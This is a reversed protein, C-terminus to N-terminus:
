RLRGAGGEYPSFLLRVRDARATLGYSGRFTMSTVVFALSSSGLLIRRAAVAVVAHFPRPDLRNPRSSMPTQSGPVFRASEGFHFAFSLCIRTELVGSRHPASHSSMSCLRFAHSLFLGPTATQLDEPSGTNSGQWCSRTM